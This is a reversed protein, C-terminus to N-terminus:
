EIVAKARLQDIVDQQAEDESSGHASLHASHNWFYARAFYILFGVPVTIMTVGAATLLQRTAEDM